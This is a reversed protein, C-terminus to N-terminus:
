STSTATAIDEKEGRSRTFDKIVSSGVMGGYSHAIVVVDRGASTENTLVARAADLDDKFTAEPDGKTSPLTVTVCKIHHRQQLIDIIKHYCTPKHWAGPIFLLTPLTAM